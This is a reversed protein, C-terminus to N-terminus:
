FEDNSILHRMNFHHLQLSYISANIFRLWAVYPIYAVVIPDFAKDLGM